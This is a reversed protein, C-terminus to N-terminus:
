LKPHPYVFVGRPCISANPTWPSDASALPDHNNGCFDNPPIYVLPRNPAILEGLHCIIFRIWAGLGLATSSWPSCSPCSSPADLFDECSFAFGFSQLVSLPTRVPAKRCVPYKHIFSSKRAQFTSQRTSPNFLPPIAVPLFGARELLSGLPLFSVRVFSSCARIVPTEHMNSPGFSACKKPHCGASSAAPASPTAPIPHARPPAGALATNQPLRM